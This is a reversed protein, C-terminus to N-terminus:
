QRNRMAKDIKLDIRKEVYDKMSSREDAFQQQITNYQARTIEDTYSNASLESLESYRLAADNTHQFLYVTLFSGVAIQLMAGIAIAKIIGNM